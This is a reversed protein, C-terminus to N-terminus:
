WTGLTPEPRCTVGCSYSISRKEAEVTAATAEDQHENAQVAEDVAPDTPRQNSSENPAELTLPSAEIEAKDKIQPPETDPVIATPQNNGTAATTAETEVENVQVPDNIVQKGASQSDDLVGSIRRAATMIVDIQGPSAKM